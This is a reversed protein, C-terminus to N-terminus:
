KNKMISKKRAKEGSYRLYLGVAMTLAGILILLEPKEKLGFHINMLRGIGIISIPMILVLLNKLIRKKIM